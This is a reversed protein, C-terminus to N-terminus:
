QPSKLQSMTMPLPTSPKGEEQRSPALRGATLFFAFFISITSFGEFFM